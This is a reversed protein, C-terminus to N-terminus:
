FVDDEVGLSVNHSMQLYNLLQSIECRLERLVEVLEPTM